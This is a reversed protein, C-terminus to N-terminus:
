SVERLLRTRHARQRDCYQTSFNYHVPRLNEPQGRKTRHKHQASRDLTRSRNRQAAGSRSRRDLVRRLRGGFHAPMVTPVMAVPVMATPMVTMPVAVVPMMTVPASVSRTVVISYSSWLGADHPGTRKHANLSLQNM